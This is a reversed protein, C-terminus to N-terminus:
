ASTSHGPATSIEAHEKRRIGTRLYGIVIVPQEIVWMHNTSAALKAIEGNM